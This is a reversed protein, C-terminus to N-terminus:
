REEEKDTECVALFAKARKEIAYLEDECKRKWTMSQIQEHPYKKSWKALETVIEEAIKQEPSTRTNWNEVKYAEATCAGNDCQCQVMESHEDYNPQKGCFPCAKLAENSM